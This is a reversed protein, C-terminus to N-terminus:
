FGGYQHFWKVHDFLNGTLIIPEHVTRDQCAVDLDNDEGDCYVASGSGTLHLEGEPHKFGLPWRPPLVPIPDLPWQYALERDVIVTNKGRQNNVRTLDPVMQDIFRAFAENGVRPAGYIVTKISAYPIQLTLFLGDLLALAGGLSHGVTYIESVNHTEMLKLVEEKIQKATKAHELQFGYHVRVNSPVGPFLASQLPGKVINLDTMLAFMKTPDTGQHTVVVALKEPWFGVFYDQVLNGDGDVLTPKFDPIAACAEGCNWGHLKHKPCYAARAFQTFPALAEIDQASAHRIGRATLTLPSALTGLCCLGLLLAATGTRFSAM